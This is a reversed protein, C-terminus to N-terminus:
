ASRADSAMRIVDVYPACARCQLVHATAKEFNWGLVWILYAIVVSPSRNMGMNCHVYVTHGQQLLDDLGEVCRPLQRRLDDPDFDRVPVRRVEIDLEAYYPELRYWPVSLAIMDADSQMNLVATIGFDWRLRDIDEHSRPYSGVFLNPLVQSPDMAAITAGVTEM